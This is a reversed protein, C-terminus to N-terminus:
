LFLYKNECDPFNFKNSNRKMKKRLNMVCEESEKNKHGAQGTYYLNTEQV